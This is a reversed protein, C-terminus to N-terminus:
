QSTRRPAAKFPAMYKEFLQSYTGAQPGPEVTRCHPALRRALSALGEGPEVLGRAIVAAGLASPAAHDICVAPRRTVDALIQPTVRSTAAGGCVVLRGTPFGVETFFGLHRALECALGEIVARVFHHPSHALTMGSIRGGGGLASEAEASPTLLPWFVLGDSAPAVADVADDIERPTLSARGLLGLVWELASGGNTMALMQGCLGPVAHQCVFTGRTVPDALRGTNAVLAWATGTGLCVDGEDVSGAGVAAAYQDHIAASVPIGAPLGTQRAAEATLTGAPTTAAVLDPLQDEGLELRSLIHPDPRGLWPNYLMAISLSTADHARRGCLRGAIVDGVYGIRRAQAFLQPNHAKLRLIQGPTMTSPARGLYRVVHEEGLEATLALDFPRGRGDLWSIVRGVPQERDDLLQLAAGQSSIGLARVQRADLGDIAQRTARCVAQWIGEMDQEVGGDPTYYRDVPAAGEALIQGAADVAVAKVNTTGLDLGLFM